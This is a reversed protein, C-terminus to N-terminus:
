FQSATVILPKPSNRRSWEIIENSMYFLTGINNTMSNISSNSFAKSLGFDCLKCCMTSRTLLCNGPKLDRHVIPRPLNHLYNIGHCIHLLKSKKM